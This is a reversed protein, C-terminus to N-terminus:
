ADALIDDKSTWGRTRSCVEFGSRSGQADTNGEISTFTDAATASVIGVHIWDGALTRRLLFLSGPQARTADRTFRGLRPASSATSPSGSSTTSSANRFWSRARAV